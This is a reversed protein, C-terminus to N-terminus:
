CPMLGVFRNRRVGNARFNPLHEYLYTSPKPGLTPSFKLLVRNELRPFSPCLELKLDFDLAWFSLGPKLELTLQPM